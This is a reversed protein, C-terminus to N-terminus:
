GSIKLIIQLKGVGIHAFYLTSTYLASSVIYDLLKHELKHM